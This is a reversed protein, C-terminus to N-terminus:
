WFHIFDYITGVVGVLASILGFLFNYITFVFNGIPTFSGTDISTMCVDIGWFILILPLFQIFMSAFNWVIGISISMLWELWSSLQNAMNRVYQPIIEVTNILGRVFVDWVNEALTRESPFGSMSYDFNENELYGEFKYPHFGMHRVAVRFSVDNFWAETVNLNFVTLLKPNEMLSLYNYVKVTLNGGDKYVYVETYGAFSLEDAGYGGAGSELGYYGNPNERAKSAVSLGGVAGWLDIRKKFELNLVMRTGTSGTFNLWVSVLTEAYNGWWGLDTGGTTLESFRFTAYYGSFNAITKNNWEAFGVTDMLTEKWHTRECIVWSGTQSIQEFEANVPHSMAIMMMSLVIGIAFLKTITKREM